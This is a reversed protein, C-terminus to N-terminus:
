LVVIVRVIGSYSMVRVGYSRMWCGGNGYGYRVRLVGRVGCGM